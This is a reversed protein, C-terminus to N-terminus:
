MISCSFPNDDSFTQNPYIHQASYQPPYNFIIGEEEQFKKNVKKQQNGQEKLVEAHKGLRKKIYEVLKQSDVVGRVRVISKEMDAEVSLVGAMRELGKKIDNACGECHIYTKLVVLKVQPDCVEKKEEAKNENKKEDPKPLPCILEANRSYKHRIRELVKLPDANKGKVTVKNNASDVVVEEVGDFGSLCKSVKKQCGECHMFVKLVIDKGSKKNANEEENSPNQESCNKKQGKGM